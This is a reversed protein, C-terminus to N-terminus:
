AKSGAAARGFFSLLTAGKGTPPPHSQSKRRGGGGLKIKKNGRGSGRGSSGHGGRSSSSLSRKPAVPKVGASEAAASVTGELVVVEKVKAGREAQSDRDVDVDAPTADAFDGRRVVGEGEGEGKGLVSAEGARSGPMPCGRSLRSWADADGGTYGLAPTPAPDGGKSRDLACGATLTCPTRFDSPSPKTGTKKAFPNPVAAAPSVWPSFSRDGRAPAPTQGSACAIVIESVDQLDADAADRPGTPPFNEKKEEAKSREIAREFMDKLLGGGVGGGGGGGGGPKKSSDTQGGRGRWQGSGSWGNRAPHQQHQRQFQSRHQHRPGSPTAIPPMTSSKTHTSSATSRGARSLQHTASRQAQRGGHRDPTPLTEATVLYGSIPDLKGCSINM